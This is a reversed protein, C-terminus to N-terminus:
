LKTTSSNAQLSTLKQYTKTLFHNVNNPAAPTEKVFNLRQHFKKLPLEDNIIKRSPFKMMESMAKLSIDNCM